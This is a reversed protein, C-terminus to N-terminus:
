KKIAGDNGQQKKKDGKGKQKEQDELYKKFFAEAEPDMDSGDRMHNQSKLQQSKSNLKAPRLSKNRNNRQNQTWNAKARAQIGELNDIDGLDFPESYEAVAVDCDGYVYFVVAEDPLFVYNVTASTPVDSGLHCIPFKADYNAIIRETSTGKKAIEGFFSYLVVYM